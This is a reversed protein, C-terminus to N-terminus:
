CPISRPGPLSAQQLINLLHNREQSGEPFIHKVIKFDQELKSIYEADPFFPKPREYYMIITQEVLRAIVQKEMEMKNDECAMLSLMSEIRSVSKLIDKCPMSSLLTEIRSVRKSIDNIWEVPTNDESHDPECEFGSRQIQEILQGAALHKALVKSREICCSCLENEKFFTSAQCEFGSELMSRYKYTVKTNNKQAWENLRSVTTKAKAKEYKDVYKNVNNDM